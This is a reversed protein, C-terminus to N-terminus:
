GQIEVGARTFRGWRCRIRVSLNEGGPSAVQIIPRYAWEGAALPEILGGIFDRAVVQTGNWYVEVTANIGPRQNYRVLEFLNWTQTVHPPLAVAERLLEVGARNFSAYRWGAADGTIGFGGANLPGVLQDPTQPQATADILPVMLIRTAPDPTATSTAMLIELWYVRDKSPLSSGAPLALGLPGVGCDLGDMARRLNGGAACTLRAITGSIAPIAGLSNGARLTWAGGGATVNGVQLANVDGATSRRVPYTDVGRIVPLVFNIPPAEGVLLSPHPWVVERDWVVNTPGLLTATPM